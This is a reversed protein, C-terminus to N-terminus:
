GELPLGMALRAVEEPTSDRRGELEPVQSPWYILDSGSPHRCHRLFLRFWYQRPEALSFVRRVIELLEEYSPPTALELRREYLLNLVFDEHGDGGHVGQFHAFPVDLGSLRAFERLDGEWTGPWAGDISAALATLREVLAPDLEPPLLATRLDM